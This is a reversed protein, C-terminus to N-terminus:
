SYNNSYVGAKRVAEPRQPAACGRRQNMRVRDAEAKARGAVAKNGADVGRVVKGVYGSRM